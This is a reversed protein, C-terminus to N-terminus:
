IPTQTYQDSPRVGLVRRSVEGHFWGGELALPGGAPGAGELVRLDTLVDRTVDDRDELALELVELGLRRLEEVTLRGLVLEDAEAQLLADVALALRVHLHDADLEGEAADRGLLHVRERVRDLLVHRQVLA